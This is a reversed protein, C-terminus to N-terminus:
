EDGKMHANLASSAAINWIVISSSIAIVLPLPFTLIVGAGAVAPLAIRRFFNAPVTPGTGWALATQLTGAPEAPDETLWTIPSTPTVGIAAPRGIGHTSATAANLFWGVELIKGRDTSATRLELTAAAAGTATTLNALSYVAM